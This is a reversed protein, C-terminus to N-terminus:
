AILNGTIYIEILAAVFLVLIILPLFKINLIADQKFVRWRDGKPAKTWNIGLRLALSSALVLAPFELLGHPVLGLILLSIREILGGGSILMVSIVIYGLLFGNVFVTLFAGLGFMLSGVIMILSVLVNQYFIDLVLNFDLAPSEGFKQEFVKLIYDFLEPYVFFAVLGIAFSVVFWTLVKKLWKRNLSIQVKYFNIMEM